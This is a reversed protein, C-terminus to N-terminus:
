ANKVVASAITDILMGAPMANLVDRPVPALSYADIINVLHWAALASLQNRLLSEGGSEFVAFPNLIADRSPMTARAPLRKERARVFAGEIYTPTLGNAWYVTAARSPQTTERPTRLREKQATTVFELWGHWTTGDPAPEGCALVGYATGDDDVVATTLEVLVEAM